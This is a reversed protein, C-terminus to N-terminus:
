LACAALLHSLLERLCLSLLRSMWLGLESPALSHLGRLLGHTFTVGLSFLVRFRRFFITLVGQRLRARNFLAPIRRQARRNAESVSM